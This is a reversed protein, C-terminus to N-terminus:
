ASHSDGTIKKGYPDRVVGRGTRAFSTKNYSIKDTSPM